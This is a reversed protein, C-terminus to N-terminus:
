KKPTCHITPLTLGIHILSPRHQSRPFNDLIAQTATVHQDGVTSTFCLDPTYDRGWRSSHFTGRQKADFTTRLVNYAAWEAVQEGNDDMDRYVWDSHHSNFVGVYIAPHQLSPPLHSLWGASPPKYVNAIMFDGVQVVDHFQDSAIPAADSITSRIYTARGYKADPAVSLLDYSVISYRGATMDVVHTEQLCIVDVEHFNM